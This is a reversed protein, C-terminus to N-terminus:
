YPFIFNLCESVPVDPQHKFICILSTYCCLCPQYLLMFMLNTYTVYVYPQHLLMFMARTAVHVYLSTYCCLYPQHLLMFLFAPTAVYVHSTYCCSYLAPTPVHDHPQHLLMFILSTYSCSWPELLLLFMLNTDFCSIHSSSQIRVSSVKTGHKVIAKIHCCLYQMLSTHFYSIWLLGLAGNEPVLGNIKIKWLPSLTIVYYSRWSQSLSWTNRFFVVAPIVM